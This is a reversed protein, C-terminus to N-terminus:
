QSCLLHRAEVSSHRRRHSAHCQHVGHHETDVAVRLLAETVVDPCVSGGTCQGPGHLADDATWYLQGLSPQLDLALTATACEVLAGHVAQPLQEPHLAETADESAEARGNESVRRAEAYVEGAVFLHHAGTGTTGGTQHGGAPEGADEGPHGAVRHVHELGPELYVAHSSWSPVFTEQVAGNLAVALFTQGDKGAAEVGGEQPGEGGVGGYEGHHRPHDPQAVGVSPRGLLGDRMQGHRLVMMVKVRLVVVDNVKVRLKVNASDQGHRPVIYMKMKLNKRM